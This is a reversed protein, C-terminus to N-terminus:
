TTLCNTHFCSSDRQQPSQHQELYDLVNFREEDPNIEKNSKAKLERAVAQFALEVNLGTKASTEMFPVKYENSLRQGEEKRVVRESSCDCKNGLLMIVVDDQAYERIEGLWARINDYSQKNTVDYLLLLAHADRYYAHTVSRFREQGATDWIQLKVQSDDVTVMKNRFDIGVTSIYNGSLFQGDRFRTLICTKGVGSDGLLMVKCHLDYHEPTASRQSCVSDNSSQRRAPQHHPQAAGPAKGNSTTPLWDFRRQGPGQKQAARVEQTSM